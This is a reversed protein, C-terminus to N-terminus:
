LKFIAVKGNKVTSNEGIVSIAALNKLADRVSRAFENMDKADSGCASHILTLPVAWGCANARIYGYLWTQLGDSLKQRKAISLYTPATSFLHVLRDDLRVTWGSQTTPQFDAIFGIIEGRKTREIVLIAQRLRVLSEKLAAVNEANASRDLKRLMAYPSVAITCNTSMGARERILQLLVTLDNQRLEKGRFEITAGNTAVYTREVYSRDIHTVGNTVRREAGKSVGFLASCLIDASMGFSSKRLEPLYVTTDLDETAFERVPAEEANARIAAIFENDTFKRINSRAM